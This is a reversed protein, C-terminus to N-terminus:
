KIIIRTKGSMELELSLMLHGSVYNLIKKEKEEAYRRAEAKREEESPIARIREIDKATIGSDSRFFLVGDYVDM